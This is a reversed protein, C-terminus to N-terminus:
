RGKGAGRGTSWEGVGAPGAGLAEHLETRVRDEFEVTMAPGESRDHLETAGLQERLQALAKHTQSKVTGTSIGLAAATDAETLDLYYRLVVCARRRAPLTALAARM